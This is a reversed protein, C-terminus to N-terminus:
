VRLAWWQGAFFSREAPKRAIRVDSGILANTSPAHLRRDIRGM